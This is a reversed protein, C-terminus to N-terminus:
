MALSQPPFSSQGNYKSLGPSYFKKTATSAAMTAQIIIHIELNKKLNPSYSHLGVSLTSNLQLVQLGSLNQHV